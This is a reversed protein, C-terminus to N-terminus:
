RACELVQQPIVEKKFFFRLVSLHLKNPGKSEGAADFPTFFFILLFGHTCMCM